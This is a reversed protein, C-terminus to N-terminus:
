GRAPFGTGKDLYHRLSNLYRAWDYNCRAYIGNTSRWGRHSFTLTVTKGDSKIDFHIQTGEWEKHGSLCHWVVGRGPILKLIKMRFVTNGHDFSFKAITNLTPTVTCDQTWWHSLDKQDTIARYVRAPTAHITLQHLIESM